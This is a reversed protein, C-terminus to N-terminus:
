KKEIEGIRFRISKIKDSKLSKQVQALLERRKTTLEYLWGSDDVKVVIQGWRYTVPRSHASASKGAADHWAAALEEETFRGKRKVRALVKKVLSRLPDRGAGTM